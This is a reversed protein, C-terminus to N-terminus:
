DYDEDDWYERYSTMREWGKNTCEWQFLQYDQNVEKDFCTNSNKGMNKCNAPAPSICATGIVFRCGNPLHRYGDKGDFSTGICNKTSNTIEFRKGNTLIISWSDVKDKGSLNIRQVKNPDFDYGECKKGQRMDDLYDAYKVFEKEKAIDNTKNNDQEKGIKDQMPLTQKNFEKNAFAIKNIFILSLITLILIIYKKM